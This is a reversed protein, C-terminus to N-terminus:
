NKLHVYNILLVVKSELGARSLKKPQKTMSQITTQKKQPSPPTYYNSIHAHTIFSNGHSQRTHTLLEKNDDMTRLGKVDFQKSLWLVVHVANDARSEGCRKHTHMCDSECLTTSKNKQVHISCGQTCIQNMRYQFSHSEWISMWISIGCNLSHKRM